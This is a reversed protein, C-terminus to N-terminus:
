NINGISITITTITTTKNTPKTKGTKAKSSITSNQMIQVFYCCVFPTFNAISNFYSIIKQKATKNKIKIKTGKQNNSNIYYISQNNFHCVVSLM